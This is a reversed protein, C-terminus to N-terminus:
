LVSTGCCSRLHRALNKKLMSANCKKCITWKDRRAQQAKEKQKKNARNPHKQGIHRNIIDSRMEKKCYRCTKM